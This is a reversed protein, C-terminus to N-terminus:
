FYSQGPKVTEWLEKAILSKQTKLGSVFLHMPDLLQGQCYHQVDSTPYQLTVDTIMSLDHSLYAYKLLACGADNFLQLVLLVSPHPNAVTAVHLFLSTACFSNIFYLLLDNLM